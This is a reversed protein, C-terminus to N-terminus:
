SFYHGAEAVGTHIIIGALEYAFSEARFFPLLAALLLLRLSFSCLSATFVAYSRTGVVVLERANTLGLCARILLHHRPAFLGANSCSAARAASHLAFADCRGAQARARALGSAHLPVFGVQSALCFVTMGSASLDSCAAASFGLYPSWLLALMIPLMPAPNPAAPLVRVLLESRRSSSTNTSSSSLCRTMILASDAALLRFSGGTLLM